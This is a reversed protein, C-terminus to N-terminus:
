SQRQPNWSTIAIHLFELNRGSFVKPNKGFKPLIPNFVEFRKHLKNQLHDGLQPSQKEM